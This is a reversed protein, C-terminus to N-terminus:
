QLSLQELLDLLDNSDVEWQKFRAIGRFFLVISESGGLTKKKEDRQEKKKM